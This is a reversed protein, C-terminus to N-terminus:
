AQFPKQSGIPRRVRRQMTLPANKRACALRAIDNLSGTGVSLVAEIGNELMDEIIKVNSMKAVRLTDYIYYTVAFDKLSKEVGTAAKLTTKDAVLLLNKPFGNKKLIEGVALALRLTDDKEKRDGYIAGPERGGHGADIIVKAM